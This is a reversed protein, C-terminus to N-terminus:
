ESECFKRVTQIFLHPEEFHPFHGSGYFRVWNQTPLTPTCAGNMLMDFYGQILLMKCSLAAPDFFGNNFTKEQYSRIIDFYVQNNDGIERDKLETTWSEKAKTNGWYYNQRLSERQNFDIFLKRVFENVAGLDHGNKSAFDYAEDAKEPSVQRLIQLDIMISNALADAPVLGRGGMIIKRQLEPHLFSTEYVLRAGYSHGYLADMDLSMKEYLYCVLGALDEVNIAHTVKQGNRASRGCERQDYTIWNVKDPINHFFRRIGNEFDISNGGPGGHVFLIWPASKSQVEAIRFHLGCWNECFEKM